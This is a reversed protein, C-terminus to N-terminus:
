PILVIALVLAIITLGITIIIANIIVRIHPRFVIAYPFILSDVIMFSFDTIMLIVFLDSQQDSMITSEGGFTGM